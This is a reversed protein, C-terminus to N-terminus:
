NKPYLYRLLDVVRNSYGSENDYWALAQLFNSGAVKTCLSDFIASHTNGIIDTSVIPDVCYQVIGKMSGNSEEEIVNNVLDTTVTSNLLVSMEVYAGLPVPVRTAFGDIRGNFAPMIKQLSKVASSTTPIINCLAARSRRPDEHPGDHLSQNNTYPHVTNFFARDIGFHDDFIKLIPAVCNTTCSANSIISHEPRLSEENVGLVVTCDLMDEGPQCLIVKRAGRDLHPELEKYTKFKGSAELICEVGYDGWPINHPLSEHFLVVEQNEVKILNNGHLSINNFQGHQSDYRLLNALIAGPMPDNIVTIEFENTSSLLRILLKGIRGCGNIGIKVPM